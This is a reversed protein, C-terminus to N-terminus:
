EAERTRKREAGSTLWRPIGMARLRADPPSGEATGFRETLSFFVALGCRISDRECHRVKEGIQPECVVPTPPKPQTTTVPVSGTSATSSTEGEESTSTVPESEAPEVAPTATPVPGAERAGSGCGALLASIMLLLPLAKTM